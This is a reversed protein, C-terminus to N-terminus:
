KPLQRFFRKINLHFKHFGELPEAFMMICNGTILNINNTKALDISEPTESMQQIWIKSLGKKVADEVVHFTQNKPTLVLLAGVDSPLLAINRYTTEGHLVDTEPHVLYLDHGTEQLKKFVSFGFKKQDRSIGAIAIKRTELFANISAKSTKM